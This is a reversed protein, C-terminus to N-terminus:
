ISGLGVWPKSRGVWEAAIGCGHNAIGWGNSLQVVSVVAFQLDIYVRVKLWNLSGAPTTADGRRVVQLLWNSTQQLLVNNDGKLM